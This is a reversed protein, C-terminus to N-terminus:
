DQLGRLCEELHERIRATYRKVGYEAAIAQAISEKSSIGHQSRIWKAMELLELVPVEDLRRSGLERAHVDALPDATVIQTGMIAKPPNYGLSFIARDRLAMQAAKNFASRVVRGIRRIGVARAYRRYVCDLVVPQEQGVIDILVAAVTRKPAERPDPPVPGSWTVYCALGAPEQNPFLLPRRESVSDSRPEVEKTGYPPQHGSGHVPLVPQQSSQGQSSTTTRRVDEATERDGDDVDSVSSPHIVPVDQANPTPTQAVDAGDHHAPSSANEGPTSDIIPPTADLSTLEVWLSAMAQERDAYYSCGRVRWFDWGCRQLKRQRSVDQLYRDEDHWHDGDCEVALRRDRGEVVLDIRYGGVPYQPTVRYGKRLIDLCVDIEFWSEFPDPPRQLTRDATRAAHELDDKSMPLATDQVEGRDLFFELLRRRLDVESLDPPKVSHFLWVQDKARSAAVNFRQIDPNRTLPGARANPAAVLSMFLVDREDGQFSYAEGCVLRRERFIDFGLREILLREILRSQAKGQLAIVGFSKGDYREDEHCEAVADVLMQAEPRNLVSQGSGERHGGPVYQAQVPELHQAPYQRLPDLPTTQYCLDNSFRIIEPMCRFHEQLVIRDSFRRHAHDFLSNELVFSNQHELESLNERILQGVDGQNVGVAEPSIQKDDGVVAIRKGLFMLPLSDPGCQSAEDVIIVDFMERKPDITSYLVHLPMIWGPIAERCADLANQAEKRWKPAYKGTGRGLRKIAQQWRILHRRHSASMSEFCSQWARSSAIEAILKGISVQHQEIAALLAKSRGPDSMRKVWTRARAHDWALALESTRGTWDAGNPHDEVASAVQPACERLRRLIDEGRTYSHQAADLSVLTLYATEWLGTDRARRASLLRDMAPHATVGSPSRELRASLGALAAEAETLRHTAARRELAGRFRPWDAPRMWPLSSLRAHATTASRQLQRADSYAGLVEHLHRCRERLEAAQLAKATSSLPAVERWMRELQRLTRSTELHEVLEGVLESTRCPQGEVLTHKWVESSQRAAAPRLPGLGLGGGSALHTHLVRAMGLLVDADTGGPLTVRRTDLRRALEPLDSLGAETQEVLERWRTEGSEMAYDLACRQWEPGSVSLTRFRAQIVELADTLGSVLEIPVAALPPDLDLDPESAISATAVAEEAVLARFEEPSALDEATSAWYMGLEQRLEPTRTQLHVLLSRFEDETLPAKQDPEVDDPIWGIGDRETDIRKAVSQSTGRYARDAVLHEYSDAERLERLEQEKSASARQQEDLRRELEAVHRTENTTDWTGERQLIGHVSRELSERDERGSGLVSICLPRISAPLKEHLVRLARPTQATVLVRQKTALLHCILNAITHSKGTGPPGQVLVGRETNLRQLIRRQEENAPLPFYQRGVLDGSVGSEPGGQSFEVDDPSTVECLDDWLATTEGDTAIRQRVREFFQQISRGGRKRLMLAPAWVVVPTEPARKQAHLADADFHGRDHVSRVVASLVADTAMRAWPDNEAAKVGEEAERELGHPREGVDLMDLEVTLETGNVPPVVRFVGRSAEFTLSASATLVHRRIDGGPRKWQLLGIGLVLEYEEGLRQQAQHIAFLKTYVDHIRQWRRHTECWSEWHRELWREFAPGISPHNALHIRERPPPSADPDLSGPQPGLISERLTPPEDPTRKESPFALWPEVSSPPVPCAPEVAQAVEIWTTDDRDEDPGWARCWCEKERPVDSLWLVEETRKRLDRQIPSRLRIIELLYDLIAARRQTSMCTGRRGSAAEMVPWSYGYSVAVGRLGSGNRYGGARPRLNMEHGCADTCYRETTSPGGLGPWRTLPRVSLASLGGRRSYRPECM